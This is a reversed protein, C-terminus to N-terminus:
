QQERAAPHVVAPEQLVAGAHEVPGDAGGDDGDGDERGHAHEEVHQVQELREDHRHRDRRHEGDGAAVGGHGHQARQLPLVHALARQEDPLGLGDDPQQGRQLPVAGVPQADGPGADGVEVVGALDSRM